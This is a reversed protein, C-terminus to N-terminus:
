LGVPMDLHQLLLVLRFLFLNLLVYTRSTCRVLVIADLLPSPWVLFPAYALHARGLTNHEAANQALLRRNCRMTLACLKYVAYDSRM